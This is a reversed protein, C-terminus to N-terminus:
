LWLTSQNLYGLKPCLLKNLEVWGTETIAGNKIVSAKFGPNIKLKEQWKM